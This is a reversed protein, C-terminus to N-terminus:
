QQLKGQEKGVYLDKERQKYGALNIPRRSEPFFFSGGGGEGRGLYLLFHLNLNILHSKKKRPLCHPLM